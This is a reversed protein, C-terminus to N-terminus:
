GRCFHAAPVDGDGPPLPLRHTPSVVKGGDHASQRSIRSAEFEKLGLPRDLGTIPYSKSLYMQHKLSNFNFRSSNPQSQFVIGSFSRLSLSLFLPVCFLLVFKEKVSSVLNFACLSLSTTHFFRSVQVFSLSLFSLRTQSTIDERWQKMAEPSIWSDQKQSLLALVNRYSCSLKM